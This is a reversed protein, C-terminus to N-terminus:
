PATVFTKKCKFKEYCKFQKPYRPSHQGLSAVLSVNVQVKTELYTLLRESDKLQMTPKKIKGTSLQM